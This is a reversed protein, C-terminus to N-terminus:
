ITICARNPMLWGVDVMNIIVGFLSFFVTFWLFYFVCVCQNHLPMYNNNNINNFLHFSRIMLHIKLQDNLSCQDNIQEIYIYIYINPMYHGVLWDILWDYLCVYMYLCM